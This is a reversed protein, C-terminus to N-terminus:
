GLATSRKSVLHSSPSTELRSTPPADNGNGNGNGDGQRHRHRHGRRPANPEVGGDPALLIAFTGTRSPTGAAVVRDIGIAGRARSTGRTRSERRSAASASPM